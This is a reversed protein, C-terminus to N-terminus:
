TLAELSNPDDVEVVSVGHFSVNVGCQAPADPQELVHNSAKLWDESPHRAEQPLSNQGAIAASGNFVYLAGHIRCLCATAEIQVRDNVGVQGLRDPRRRSQSHVIEVV